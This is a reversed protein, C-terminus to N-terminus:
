SALEPPQQESMALQRWYWDKLLTLLISRLKDADAAEVFNTISEPFCWMDCEEVWNDGHHYTVHYNLRECMTGIYTQALSTTHFKDEWTKMESQIDFHEDTLVSIAEKPLADTSARRRRFWLGMTVATYEQSLYRKKRPDLNFVPLM